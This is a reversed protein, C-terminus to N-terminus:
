ALERELERLLEADDAPVGARRLEDIHRQAALPDNLYRANLLALMLRVHRVQPDAAYKRLFIEYITSATEHRGAAFCANALDLQQQRALPVEGFDDLLRTYLTAAAEADGSALAKVVETRRQAIRQQREEEADADRKKKAANSVREKEGLRGTWVARDANTVLEKFQRRRQMQRGISFLDYPERALAKSWLLGLAVAIGFAYGGLHAQLAVGHSAGLGTYLLDKAIAFVILIWAPISFAGIVIFFLIIRIHTLPMLVLFAGTVAAISGSAGVVPSREFFVHAAGAVVGGALYFGLFGLRRFRDEVAPGFVYLFLMNFLLHLFGGHLFQYTVFGWATAHQPDLWLRTIVRAWADPNMRPSSAVAGAVYILINLGILWYTVLTPRKLPRDTGIPIIM